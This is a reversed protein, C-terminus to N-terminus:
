VVAILQILENAVQIVEKKDNDKSRTDEEGMHVNESDEKHCSEDEDDMIKYFKDELANVVDKTYIVRDKDTRGTLLVILDDQSLGSDDIARKLRSLDACPLGSDQIFMNDSDDSEISGDDDEDDDDDDEDDDEDDDDGDYDSEDEDEVDGVLKASYLTARCCPCLNKSDTKMRSMSIICDLCIVHECQTTCISRKETSEFCVPCEAVAITHEFASM